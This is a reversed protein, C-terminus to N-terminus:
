YNLHSYMKSLGVRKKQILHRYPQLQNNQQIELNNKILYKIMQIDGRNIANSMSQITCTETRNRHLYTLMPLDYAIDMPYQPFPAGIENLYEVISLRGTAIAQKTHETTLPHTTNEHLWKFGDKNNHYITDFYLSESYQFEHEKLWNYDPSDNEKGGFLRKIEIDRPEIKTKESIKEFLYKFIQFSSQYPSYLLHSEIDIKIVEVLFKVVQLYKRSVATAMSEPPFTESRNFHLFKIVELHGKRISNTMAFDTSQATTNEHLYRLIHLQGHLAVDDIMTHLEVEPREKLALKLLELHGNTGACVISDIRPRMTRNSLVFKIVQIHKDGLKYALSIKSITETRNNLLFVVVDLHGNCVADDIAKSGTPGETRNNHLFEVCGLHGNSAAVDFATTSCGETRNFHLFKLIELQGYKAAIEMLYPHDPYRSGYKEVEKEFASGDKVNNHFFEVISLHGYQVAQQLIPRLHLEEPFTNYVLEVLDLAGMRVATKISRLFLHKFLDYPSSELSGGDENRETSDRPRRNGRETDWHSSRWDSDTGWGSSHSEDDATQLNRENSDRPPPNSRETPWDSSCSVGDKLEIQEVQEKKEKNNELSSTPRQDRVMTNFIEKYREYYGYRILQDPFYGLDYYDFLFKRTYILIGVNNVRELEEYHDREQLHIVTVFSFIHYRLFQSDLLRKFLKSRKDNNNKSSQMM